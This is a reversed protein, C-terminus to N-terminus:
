KFVKNFKDAVNHLIFQHGIEVFGYDCSNLWINLNGLQRLPNNKKFGTLTITQTNKKNATLVANRINMSNGSSSIAILIDKEDVLKEIQKSFVNEYGYDNAFCSFLSSEHLTTAKIGAINFFDTTAHAAVGASGGNGIIYLNGARKKLDNCFEFFLMIGDNVNLQQNNSTFESKSVIKYFHDLRKLLDLDM